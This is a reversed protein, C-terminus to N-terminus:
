SDRPSPSTYLLCDKYKSVQRNAKTPIDSFPVWEISGIEGRTLTTFNHNDPVGRVLYLKVLGDNSEVFESPNLQPSIDYGVEEYIERVACQEDTEDQNTKGKPFGYRRKSLNSVVLVKELTPNFLVAGRM